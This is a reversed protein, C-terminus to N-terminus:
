HKKKVIWSQKAPTADVNGAPDKARVAFSHRGRKKVKVAAPSSCSRFRAGDLSCEFTSGAETSSFSFSARKKTEKKKPGKTIKTDPATTDPEPSPTVPPGPCSPILEYAGIDPVAAGGCTAAASRANGDLDTAGLLTAGGTGLDLTGSSSALEHFDGNTADVFAPPTTVNTGSGPDTVTAIDGADVPTETQTAYNSNTLVIRAANTGMSADESIAKVDGSAVSNAVDLTLDQDVGSDERVLIANAFNPDKAVFTVNRLRATHTVAGTADMVFANANLTAWCVSDRILDNNGSIRCVTAPGQAFTREVTVNDALLDLVRAGAQNSQFRLRRLTAADTVTMNPSGTSPILPMPDTDRSRLTIADNVTLGGQSEYVGGTSGPLLTVIDGDSVSADQIANALSCPNAELCQGAGSPGTGNPAAFREAAAAPAAASLVVLVSAAAIGTILRKVTLV